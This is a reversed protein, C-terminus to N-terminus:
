AANSRKLLEASVKPHLREVQDATMTELTDLTESAKPDNDFVKSNLMQAIEGRLKEIVKPDPKKVQPAPAPNAQKQAQPQPKDNGRGMAGEGDDDSTVIGLIAALSYRRTYTIASGYGQPDQKTLFIPTTSEIYGGSEHYVRTILRHENGEKVPMQSVFLGNEALGERCAEWISNLDAYHSKHFPNDQDKLAPKFLKQAAALAKFLGPTFSGKETPETSTATEM